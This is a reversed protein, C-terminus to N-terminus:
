APYRGTRALLERIELRASTNFKLLSATVRGIPTLPQIRGGNLEFHENWSDKRPNFLATLEGTVSDLSAIDSGKTRNCEFCALALNELSTTGGHKEAIIHDPEHRFFCDPEAILCYECKGDARKSVQRRLEAAIYTSSM